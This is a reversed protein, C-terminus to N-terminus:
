RHEVALRYTQRHRTGQLKRTCCGLRSVSAPKDGLFGRLRHNLLYVRRGDDRSFCHRAKHADPSGGRGFLSPRQGWASGDWGLVTSWIRNRAPPERLPQSIAIRRLPLATVIAAVIQIRGSDEARPSGQENRHTPWSWLPSTPVMRHFNVM